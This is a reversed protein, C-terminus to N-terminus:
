GALCRALENQVESFSTFVRHPIQQEACYRALGAKAFVLDAMEAAGRDSLGDGLFVARYGDAKAEGVARSKDHGWPTDDLFELSWRGQDIRLPNALIKVQPLNYPGLLNEIIDKIGASLITLPIREQCCWAAFAPFGRDIQVHEKLFLLVEELTGRIASVEQQIGDRLSIEGATIQRGIGRRFEASSFTEALFNLTDPHSITGDFDSFIALPASGSSESHNRHTM